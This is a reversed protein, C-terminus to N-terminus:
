GGIISLPIKIKELKISYMANAMLPVCLYIGIIMPLYWMHPLPVHKLLLMEKTIDKFSFTGYAIYFYANYLVVWLEYTTLLGLWNNKYFKTLGADDYFRQLLLYGSILLFIPVGLRGATFLAFGLYKETAGLGNMFQLNLQYVSETSHCLVVLLIAICRAYDIWGIRKM